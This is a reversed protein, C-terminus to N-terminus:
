QEPKTSTQQVSTVISDTPLCYFLQLANGRIHHRYYCEDEPEATPSPDNDVM